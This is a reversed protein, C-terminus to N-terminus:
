NKATEFLIKLMEIAHDRRRVLTTRAMIMLRCMQRMSMRKVYLNTIIEKEEEPLCAICNDLNNMTEQLEVLGEKSMNKSIEMLRLKSKNLQYNNLLDTVSYSSM